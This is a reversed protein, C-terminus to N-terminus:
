SKNDNTIKVVVCEDGYGKTINSPKPINSFCGNSIMCYYKSEQYKITDTYDSWDSSSVLMHYKSYESEFVKLTQNYERYHSVCCGGRYVLNIHYDPRCTNKSM